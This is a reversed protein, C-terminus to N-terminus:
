AGCRDAVPDGQSAAAVAAANQAIAEEMGDNFADM